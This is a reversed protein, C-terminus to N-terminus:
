FIFYFKTFNANKAGMSQWLYIALETLFQKKIRFHHFILQFFLEQLWPAHVCFLFLDLIIQFVLAFEWKINNLFYINQKITLYM